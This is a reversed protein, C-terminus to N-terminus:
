FSALVFSIIEGIAGKMLSDLGFVIRLCDLWNMEECESGVELVWGGLGVVLRLVWGLRGRLIIDKVFMRCSSALFASAGLM